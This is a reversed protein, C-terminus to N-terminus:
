NTALPDPITIKGDVIDQRVAKLKAIVDPFDIVRCGSSEGGPALSVIDMGDEKLGFEKVGTATGDFIEQSIMAVVVDLRKMTGDAVNGPALDCQNYDVSYADFGKEKAAEFTGGYDGVAFISDAGDAFQQLALEKAKAVDTFPNQGGVFLQTGTVNPNSAQAGLIFSDSYRHLFPIDIAVVNGVKNTKTLLGSEYGLLYSAEQERFVGCHLNTAITETPCADILLFQQDPNAEAYEKALDTFKFTNLVIVDPQEALAADLNSRMSDQDTSEFTKSTGNFLTAAADTAEKGLQLFPNGGLPDPSIYIFSKGDAAASASTGSTPQESAAAESSTPASSSVGTGCAAVLM